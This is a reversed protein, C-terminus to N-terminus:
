PQPIVKIETPGSLTQEWDVTFSEGSELDTVGIYHGGPVATLVRGDRTSTVGYALSEAAGVKVMKNQRAVRGDLKMEVVSLTNDETSPFVVSGRAHNPAIPYVTPHSGKRVNDFSSPSRPNSVDVLNHGGVNGTLATPAQVLYAIKTGPFFAVGAADGSLGITAGQSTPSAVSFTKANGAPGYTLIGVEGSDDISFEENYSSGTSARTYTKKQVDVVAFYSESFQGVFARQGDKTFAIGMPGQGTVLEGTIQRTELDIFVLTNKGSPVKIFAGLFGASISVIATKGDPSVGISMPGPSYKSLDVTGVLADSKKGGPKLKGVDVVSVTKALFDATVALEPRDNTTPDTAPTAEQAAVPADDAYAPTLDITQGAYSRAQEGHAPEASACATLALAYALLTLTLRM